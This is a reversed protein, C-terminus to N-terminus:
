ASIKFTDRYIFNLGKITLDPDIGDLKTCYRSILKIDGGTGIAPTSAGLKNKIKKIVGDILVSSGCVIGSLMSNATDRGILERPPRLKVRPLLATERSLARLSINLGPLILGGLYERNKSIVDFTIATGLDVIILPAGFLKIGAYANVLRDQGVQRPYRYLNKVPVALNKGLVFPPKGSLLRLSEGLIKNAGPVVSSIIVEDVQTKGIKRRIGSFTLKKTPITFKKIIKNKKFIGFNVNTNGADVCILTM